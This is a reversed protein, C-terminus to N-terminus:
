DSILTVSFICGLLHHFAIPEVIDLRNSKGGRSTQFFRVGLVPVGMIESDRFGGENRYSALRFGAWSRTIGGFVWRGWVGEADIM